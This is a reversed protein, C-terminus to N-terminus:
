TVGRDVFHIRPFKAHRRIVYAKSARMELKVGLRFAQYTNYRGDTNLENYIKRESNTM